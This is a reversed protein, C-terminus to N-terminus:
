QTKLRKRYKDINPTTTPDIGKLQALHYSTLDGLFLTLFIRTLYSSGKIGIETVGIKEDTLMGKLANIRKIMEQREKIDRFIMVHYRNYPCEIESHLLDPITNTFAHIGANENLMIKWRKTISDMQKSSYLLLTKGEIEKALEYAKDSIVQVNSLSQRISALDQSIPEIINNLSMVVLMPFFMYALALRATYGRPIQILKPPVPQDKALLSLKGNSTIIVTECRKKLADSYCLIAEQSNGTYSLIFVLTEKDCYPPLEYDQVTEINIKNQLYTKLLEGANGSAGVGAVIIRNFKKDFQIRRGLKLAEDIQKPFDFLIQKM